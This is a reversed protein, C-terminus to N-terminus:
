CGANLITKLPDRKLEVDLMWFGVDEKISGVDLMWFGFDGKIFGARSKGQRQSLIVKITEFRSILSAPGSRSGQLKILSNFQLM